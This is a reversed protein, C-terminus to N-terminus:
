SADSERKSTLAYFSSIQVSPLYFFYILNSRSTVSESLSLAFYISSLKYSVLILSSTVFATFSCLAPISKAIFRKLYITGQATNKIM